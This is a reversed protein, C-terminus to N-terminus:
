MLSFCLCVTLREVGLCTLAAASLLAYSLAADHEGLGYYAAGRIALADMNQAEGSLM